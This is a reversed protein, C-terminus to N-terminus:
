VTVVASPKCSSTGPMTGLSLRVGPAIVRKAGWNPCSVSATIPFRGNLSHVGPFVGPPVAGTKEDELALFLGKCTGQVHVHVHGWPLVVDDIAYDRTCRCHDQNVAADCCRMLM